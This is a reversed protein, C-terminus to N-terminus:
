LSDVLQALAQTSFLKNKIRALHLGPYLIFQKRDSGGYKRDSGGGGQERDLTTFQAPESVSRNEIRAGM